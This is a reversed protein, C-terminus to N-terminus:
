WCLFSAIEDESFAPGLFSHDMHWVCEDSGCEKAAIWLAAGLATGADGAAPQVWVERFPSRDRIRANPVCNLAAGGALCFREEGSVKHLWHAIEQV